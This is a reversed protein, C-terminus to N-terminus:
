GGYLLYRLRRLQNIDASDPWLILSHYRNKTQFRVVTFWPHLFAVVFEAAVPENYRCGLRWRTVLSAPHNGDNLVDPPELWAIANVDHRWHKFALWCCLPLAFLWYPVSLAHLIVLLLLTGQLFLWLGLGVRSTKLEIREPM